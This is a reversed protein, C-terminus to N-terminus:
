AHTGKDSDKQGGDCRGEGVLNSRRTKILIPCSSTGVSQCPSTNAGVRQVERYHQGIHVVTEGRLDEVRENVAGQALDGAVRWTSAPRRAGTVANVKRCIRCM